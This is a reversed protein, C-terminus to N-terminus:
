PTASFCNDDTHFGMLGIIILSRLRVEGVVQPAPQVTLMSHMDRTESEGIETQVKSLRLFIMLYKLGVVVEIFIYM